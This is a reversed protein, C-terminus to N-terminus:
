KHARGFFIATAVTFGLIGALLGLWSQRLGFRWILAPAFLFLFGFLCNTLLRMSGTQTRFEQWRREIAKTDLGARVLEEIANARQAPALSTLQRLQQALYAAFAPSAAKLLLEGNVRVKKGNSEVSQIEAFRFCKGTQIPRGGPNVSPAVYALVADSSLSLPFQNGALLTGLPPLPHAFIFGGQQNGLVAGPHALKWRRGFWTLFAVSGRRLWCACEWCYIVVLVLFLLELDTM